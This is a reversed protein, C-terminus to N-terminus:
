SSSRSCWRCRPWTYSPSHHWGHAGTRRGTRRRSHAQHQGPHNRAGVDRSARAAVADVRCSPSALPRISRSLGRGPRRRGRFTGHITVTHPGVPLSKIMLYVGDAVATGSSGGPVGLANSPPLPGFSFQPSVARYRGINAVPANNVSAAIGFATNMLATACDRQGAETLGGNFPFAEVSSCDVNLVPLFLAAGKPLTCDLQGTPSFIGVLFSVHKEGSPRCSPTPPFPDTPIALGSAVLRREVRRLQPRVHPRIPPLGPQRHSPHVGDARRQGAGRGRLSGRGPCGGGRAYTGQAGAPGARPSRLFPRRKM